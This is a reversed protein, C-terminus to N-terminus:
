IQNNVCLWEDQLKSLLPKNTNPNYYFVLRICENEERKVIHIFGHDCDIYTKNTINLKFLANLDKNIIHEYTDLFYQQLYNMFQREISEFPFNFIGLPMEYNRTIYVASDYNNM